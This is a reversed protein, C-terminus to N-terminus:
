LRIRLFSLSFIDRFASSFIFLINEHGRPMRNYEKFRTLEIHGGSSGRFLFCGSLVNILGKLGLIWM